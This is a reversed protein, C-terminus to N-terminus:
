RARATLERARRRYAAAGADNGLDAMTRAALECAAPTPRATVLADLTPQIEAFRHEAALLVALQLYAQETRPFAAIERRFAAEAEANRGLRALLDGRASELTALPPSAGAAIRRDAAAILELGQAPEGRAGLVQALLLLAPLRPKEADGLASRAEKEAADWQGRRAAVTALLFHAEDPSAVLALRANDAAADLEGLDLEIKAIEVAVDDLHAPSRRVVERYEARAAELRGLRRLVAALQIRADVMEPNADVLKGLRALAPALQGHEVEEFAVQLEDLQGIRAKPDVRPGTSEAAAGALYGLASLKKREEDSAPAATTLAAPVAALEQRRESFVRRETARLNTREGPDAAWDYLEPDPGDILQFREDILSRLESWGLHIRPYFTEAYLRRPPGPAALLDRGPLGPPPTVGVAALVTPLVDVLGAPEGRVEGARRAGPLKIVLPVHLSERYLLIGHEREGHDGLGEGHDGAVVIVAKGYLDRRDLEALLRGLIADAAEIEGDYPNAVRSRFPEPPDYPTHPEFLHLWLLFPKGAAGALFRLDAALSEDGPRQLAGLPEDARVELSDDFFAFGSAIGTEARLVYASVAAGTAYGAGQLVGALTPFKAGDLRYGINSRVGHEWPLRGTLLTSHSPLTLPVQAWANEFRVGDRVLRDLAPTETGRYGWAPLHDARLTDLTVLVVPAGPTPRPRGGGCGALAAALAVALAAAAIAAAPRAGRTM